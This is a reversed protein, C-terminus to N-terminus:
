YIRVYIIGDEGLDSPGRGAEVFDNRSEGMAGEDQHPLPNAPRRWTQNKERGLIDPSFAHVDRFHCLEILHGFM